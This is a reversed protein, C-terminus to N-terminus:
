GVLEIAFFAASDYLLVVREQFLCCEEDIGNLRILDLPTPSTITKDNVIKRKKL